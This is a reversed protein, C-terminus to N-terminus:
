LANIALELASEQRQKERKGWPRILVAIGTVTSLGINLKNIGAKLSM